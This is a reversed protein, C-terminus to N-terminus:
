RNSQVGKQEACGLCNLASHCRGHGRSGTSTQEVEEGIVMRQGANGGTDRRATTREAIEEEETWEAGARSCVDRFSHDRLGRITRHLLLVHSVFDDEM